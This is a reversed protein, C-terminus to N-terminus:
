DAAIPTAGALNGLLEDAQAQTLGVFPPRVNLWVPDQRQHAIIQKLAAIQPVNAPFIQRWNTIAEQLGEAEETQWRDFFRRELGAIVNAVANISGAGGLRLSALLFRESGTFTGFGPFRTLLTHLNDWDGSSDKIGVVTNPYTTILREILDHSFGVIAVPPIHYLYIRLRNDGVREIV